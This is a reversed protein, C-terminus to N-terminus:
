RLGALVRGRRRLEVLIPAWVDPVAAARAAISTANGYAAASQKLCALGTFTCATLRWIPAREDEVEVGTIEYSLGLQDKHRKITAVINPFNRGYLIGEVWLSGGQIYAQTVAGIPQSRDHDGFSGDSSANLPAGILSPLAREAAQRTVIVRHGQSGGPARQSPSDITCLVGRWPVRNELTGEARPLDVGIGDFARM